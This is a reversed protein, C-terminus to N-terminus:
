SDSERELAETMRDIIQLATNHAALLLQGVGDLHRLLRNTDEGTFLEEAERRFFHHVLDNRASLADSLLKASEPSLAIHKRAANILRGLTQSSHETLLADLTSRDDAEGDLARAVSVIHALSSELMQAYHAAVGYAGYVEKLAEEESSSLPAM